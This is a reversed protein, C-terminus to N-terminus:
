HCESGIILSWSIYTDGIQCNPCTLFPGCTNASCAYQTTVQSWQSHPSVICLTDRTLSTWRVVLMENKDTAFLDM